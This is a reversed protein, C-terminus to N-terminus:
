KLAEYGALAATLAAIQRDTHASTLSIRLRESGKAVTPSRIAPVLIGSEELAQSLAIARESSGVIVSVIHSESAGANLGLSQLEQRLRAAKALLESGLNGRRIEAIAASAAAACTAPLGTNFLFSRATSVLLERVPASCAAFGGYSGCAKSLTGTIVSIQERVSASAVGAGAAGFVGLAHAEDVILFAGFEAALASIQELPALDGDMSFLSETVIAIRRGRAAAVKLARRLDDCCNHRYRLLKAGSLSIGDLISAHVFRDAVVTDHRGLLASLVGLNALYGAGFLLASEKGLWEALSRELEVHADRTGSLVRSASVGAGEAALTAVVASRVTEGQSLGLYDNSGFNVFQRGDRELLVADGATRCYPVCSRRAGAAAIEAIQATAWETLNAQDMVGWM